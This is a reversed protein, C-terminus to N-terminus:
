RSVAEIAAGLVLGLAVGVTLFAIAITTIAARPVIAMEVGRSRVVGEGM